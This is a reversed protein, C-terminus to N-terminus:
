SVMLRAAKRDAKGNATMPLEDVFHIIKPIMYDPVLERLQRKVGVMASLGRPAQSGATQVIAELHSYISAGGSKEVPFVVARRVHPLRQLQAEIDEIEIRYGHLKVQYDLRGLFHLMGEQLVGADGTRYFRTTGSPGNLTGFVAANLDPRGFYGLSVTDGAIVIEGREGEPLSEGSEDWIIIETGPKAAGVPLVTHRALVEKDVVVSTVAVTSETPGYTNIVRAAPFRELLATATGIALTEGCFLFERVNPMLEHTFSSDGLCLDAFSPTSVWVTIPELRLVGFLEALSAIHDRDVCALTSGSALSIALDMVSLDFSFPAQNLFVAPRQPGSALTEEVLTMGWEAFRNLSDRSIQVGKPRGTSGSTFIIYFPDDGRVEDAPSLPQAPATDALHEVESAALTVGTIGDPLPEGVAVLLPSESEALISNVRDVPFSADVPIYPHGSRVAALFAVIMSPHKHGYVVVPSRDASLRDRLAAGLNGSRIALEGYTLEHERWRVCSRGPDTEARSLVANILDM